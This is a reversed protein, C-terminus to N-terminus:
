PLMESTMIKYHGDQNDEYHWTGDNGTVARTRIWEVVDIIQQKEKATFTKDM